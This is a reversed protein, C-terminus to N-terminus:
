FKGDIKKNGALILGLDKQDLYKLARWPLVEYFGYVFAEIQEKIEVAMIYYARAKVYQKKNQETILIDNGNEILEITKM